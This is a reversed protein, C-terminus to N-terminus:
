KVDGVIRGGAAPLLFFGNSSSIARKGITPSATNIIHLVESLTSSAVRVRLLWVTHKCGNADAAHSMTRRCVCPPPPLVFYCLDHVYICVCVCSIRWVFQTMRDDDGDSVASRPFWKNSPDFAKPFPNENPAYFCLLVCARRQRPESSPLLQSLSIFWRADARLQRTERASRVSRM